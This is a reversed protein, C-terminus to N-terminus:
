DTLAAVYDEIAQHQLQLQAEELLKQRLERDLQLIREQSLTTIVDDRAEEYSRPQPDTRGYLQLLAYAANPPDFVQVPQSIEGIQLETAVTTGRSGLVVRLRPLPLSGLRGGQDRSVHDSFESAITELTEGNEIRQRLQRAEELARRRGPDDGSKVLVLGIDLELDTRFREVHQAFYQRLEEDPRSTVLDRRERRWHDQLRVRHSVRQEAAALREAAEPDEAVAAQALLVAESFHRLLEGPRPTLMLPELDPSLGALEGSTFTEDDITLVARSPDERDILAERDIVVPAEDGLQGLLQRACLEQRELVARERLEDRAQEFSPTAEIGSEDRLLLHFGNAVEIVESYAGDALAWAATLVSAELPARRSIRGILGGDSATDSDSRLRALEVFSAGAELEERAANLAQRAATRQESPEGPLSRKYIHRLLIWPRPEQSTRSVFLERLADDSIEEEPCRQVLYNRGIRESAEYRALLALAPQSELDTAEAKAVVIEPLALDAIREAVWEDLQQGPAPRRRASPLDRVMADFEGITIEGGQWSALVDPNKASRCAGLTGLVAVIFLALVPTWSRLLPVASLGGRSLVRQM